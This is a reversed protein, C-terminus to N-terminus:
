VSARIHRRLLGALGVLGTGFLGLTSPEPVSDVTTDGGSIEVSGNFYGRGTNVTLQVAVGTVTSGGMSGTVVGTLTYSHTGNSLKVLTWTAPGSFWGSFLVGNPVGNSGNGTVTFSGGAAFIGGMQLSGSSLAGTSFTVTGLDGQLLGGGNFGTIAILTSGSLSLGANTGSLTGGSNSFDIDSTALAPNPLMICFVSMWLLTPLVAKRSFTM